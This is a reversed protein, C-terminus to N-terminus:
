EQADCCERKRPKKVGLIEALRTRARHVLVRVAGVEIGLIEAVEQYDLDHLCHLVFVEAQPGPLEALAARLSQALEDDLLREAPSLEKGSLGHWDPSSTHRRASRMRQRLRDLASQAAVRRVLGPWHHIEQERSIQLVRVFTDQFCDAADAANGVVRHIAQYAVSGYQELIVSWDPM